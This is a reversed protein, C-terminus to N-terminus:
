NKVHGDLTIIHNENVSQVSEITDYVVKQIDFKEEHFELKGLQIRSVNLMDDILLRLKGLQANMKSLPNIAPHDKITNQIQKLAIQTYMRLSTVPTKLEHSAVSIFEDRLSIARQADRFLRANHIALAARSAVEEATTLDSQTFYRSSESTIFTMAGLTKGEANMPVIM